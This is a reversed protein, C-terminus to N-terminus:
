KFEELSPVPRLTDTVRDRTDSNPDRSRYLNRTYSLHHQTVFSEPPTEKQLLKKRFYVNSENRTIDKMKSHSLDTSKTGDKPTLDQSLVSSWPDLPGEPVTTM